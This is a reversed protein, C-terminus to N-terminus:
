DTFRAVVEDEVRWQCFDPDIAIVKEGKDFLQKIAMFSKPKKELYVKGAKKIKNMLVPTFQLNFNPSLIFIKM